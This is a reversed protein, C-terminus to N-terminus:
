SQVTPYLFLILVDVSKKLRYLVTGADEKRKKELVASPLYSAYLTLKRRLDEKLSEHLTSLCQGHKVVNGSGVAQEGRGIRCADEGSRSM